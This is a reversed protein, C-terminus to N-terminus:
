KVINDAAPRDFVYESVLTKKQIHENVIKKAVAANVKGYIIAPMDPAIVEVTPENACFGMCGTQRIIVNHIDQAELEAMFARLTDRAGAAIGCTAMGIVIQIEKGDTERKNMAAKQEERMKKLEALTLAM